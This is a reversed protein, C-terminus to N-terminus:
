GVPELLSPDDNAPTNVRTSVPYARLTGAPSGALLARVAEPDRLDRDLWADWADSGLVVPQRSHLERVDPGAETTVIACTHLRAGEGGEPHHWVAWLGAFAMPEDDARHVFHPVKAGDDRRQWEYFGDAPIVCRRRRVADRFAPKDPASEARANILKNGIKPDDAWHLVLGWRFATLWRKDDHEVVARVAQSPAVNYSPAVDDDVREDVMFLRVLGDPDSAAAFRGCMPILM